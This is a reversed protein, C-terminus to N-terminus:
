LPFCSLNGAIVILRDWKKIFFNLLCRFINKLFSHNHQKSCYSTFNSSSPSSWVERFNHNIDKSAPRTEISHSLQAIPSQSVPYPSSGIPDGQKIHSACVLLSRTLVGGQQVAAFNVGEGGVGVLVGGGAGRRGWRWGQQAAPTWLEWLNYGVPNLWLASLGRCREVNLLLNAGYFGASRTDPNQPAAVTRGHNARHLLRFSPPPAWRRIQHFGPTQGRRSVFLKLRQATFNSLSICITVSPPFPARCGFKDTDLAVRLGSLM